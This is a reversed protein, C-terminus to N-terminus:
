QLTHIKSGNSEYQGQCLHPRQALVFQFHKHTLLQSQMFIFQQAYLPHHTPLCRHRLPTTVLPPPSSATWYHRPHRTEVIGRRLTHRTQKQQQQQQQRQSLTITTSSLGPGRLVPTPSTSGGELGSLGGLEAIGTMLWELVVIFSSGLLNM